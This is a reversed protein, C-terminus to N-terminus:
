GFEAPQFYTTRGFVARCVADIIRMRRQAEARALPPVRQGQGLLMEINSTQLRHEFERQQEVMQFAHQKQRTFLAFPDSATELEAALQITLELAPWFDRHCGPLKGLLVHCFEAFAPGLASFGNRLMVRARLRDDEELFANLVKDLSSPWRKALKLRTLFRDLLDKPLPMTLSPEGGDLAITLKIPPELLRERLRPVLEDVPTLQTLLPEIRRQFGASPFLLFELLTEAESTDADFLLERITGADGGGYTAAAFTAADADLHLPRSLHARLTEALLGLPTDTLTPM